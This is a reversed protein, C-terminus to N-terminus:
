RKSEVALRRWRTPTLGTAQKFRSTFHSQHAFGCDTAIEALEKERAVLQDKAHQIQCDLLVHKPTIGLLETFRRHFHFPSLHVVKAIEHLTPGRHFQEQMFKLAPVLRALEPDAAFDTARVLGWDACEPQLCFFVFPGDGLAPYTTHTVVRFNWLDGTADPLSVRDSAVSKGNLHGFRQRALDLMAQRLSPDLQELEAEALRPRLTHDFIFVRTAPEQRLPERRPQGALRADRARRIADDFERAIEGLRALDEDGFPGQQASRYVALAGAYGPLVPSELPAAIAYRLGNPQLFETFFRSSEFQGEPWADEGRVPIGRTITEWALCDYAHADKAYGRILPEAVRPPQAIQISGRPLVTVLLATECSLDACMAHFMDRYPLAEGRAGRLHQVVDQENVDKVFASKSM